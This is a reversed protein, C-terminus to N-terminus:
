INERTEAIAAEFAPLYDTTKIKSFDPAGFPLTSEVLLPNERQSNDQCSTLPLLMSSALAMTMITKKM